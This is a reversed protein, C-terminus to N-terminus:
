RMPSAPAFAAPIRRRTASARLSRTPPRSASAPSTARSNTLIPRSRPSRRTATPRSSGCLASSVGHGYLWVIIERIARQDRWGRIIKAERVPGIGTVERLREPENEIVEFVNHSFAAVLKAAYVPGIGKIMGSGLYKELGKLTTPVTAEVQEAKFQLGYTRDNLWAGTAEVYEGAGIAAAHGTVTVLNRQGRVKLRLVCFGTDPNHFTVREVSGFIHERHSGL